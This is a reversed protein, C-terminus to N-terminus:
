GPFQQQQVGLFAAVAILGFYLVILVFYSILGILMWMKAQRSSREAGDYDGVALKTNVQSAFIIAPIGFPPCCCLTVFISPVLYNPVHQGPMGPARPVAKGPEYPNALAAGCKACTMANDPNTQGCQPCYM